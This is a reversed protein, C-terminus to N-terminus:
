QFSTKNLPKYRLIKIKNGKLFRKPKIIKIGEFEKLKLLHADYSLIYNGNGNVACELIRDDAPDEKVIAVNRKPVIIKSRVVITKLLDEVVIRKNTIFKQFKAERILVQSVELLIEETILIEIEKKELTKLLQYAEGEWFISSLWVNTDLVVRM